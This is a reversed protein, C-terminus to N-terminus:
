TEPRCWVRRWVGGGLALAYILHDRGYDPSPMVDVISRVALGGNLPYWNAGGDASHYVGRDTAALLDGLEPEPLVALAMVKPRERALAHGAFAPRRKGRRVEVVGALPRYFQDGIAAYWRRDQPYTCPIALVAGRGGTRHIIVREWQGSDDGQWVVVTSGDPQGVAVFIQKDATFTPSLALALVAEERFPTKVPQWSHGGNSSIWIGQGKTGALMTADRAFAPSLALVQAPVEGVQEWAEGDRRSMWIGEPLAAYLLPSGKRDGKQAPRAGTGVGPHPSSRAPTIALDNVELSPLGTSAESWTTGGDDSRIVGEGPGFAFLKRDAAFTPSLVLGTMLRALLGENAAQWSALDASRYIGARSLGVLVPGGAPFTPSLALCLPGPLEVCCSWSTGADRSVYVGSETAALVTRDEPFRPSVALANVCAGALAGGLAQWTRGRDTSRFVGASETGAFLTGDEAFGPSCALCQVPAAEPPFAAERWARGGNQSRFVGTTTAAFITEDQGFAPSIALDLVDLDLLGFNWAEWTAGRDGSRFVGDGMTGAFAVGDELFDPSIELTSINVQRGRFDGSVWTHGGDASRFVSGELSAALVVNDRAFAPSVAVAVLFLGTFGEDVRDWTEGGDWSRYLGAMTAAFFTGDRVFDPSAALGAVTGGSWGGVFEWASKPNRIESKSTM